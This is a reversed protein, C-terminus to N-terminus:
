AEEKQSRMAVVISYEDRGVGAAQRIKCTLPGLKMMMVCKKDGKRKMFAEYAKYTKFLHFELEMNLVVEDELEEKSKYGACGEAAQCDGTEWWYPCENNVCRKM